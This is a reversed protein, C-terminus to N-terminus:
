QKMHDALTGLLDLKAQLQTINNTKKLEHAQAMVKNYLKELQSRSMTGYGKVAIEEENEASVVSPMGAPSFKAGSGGPLQSTNNVGGFSNKFDTAPSQKYNSPKRQQDYGIASYGSSGETIIAHKYVEFIKKYEDM